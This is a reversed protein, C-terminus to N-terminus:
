QQLQSADTVDCTDNDTANEVGCILSQQKLWQESVMLEISLTNGPSIAGLNPSLCNSTNDLKSCPCVSLPIPRTDSQEVVTNNTEMVKTFVTVANYKHILFM